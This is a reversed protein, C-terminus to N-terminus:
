APEHAAALLDEPAAHVHGEDVPQHVAAAPRHVGRRAGDAEHLGAQHAAVREENEASRDREESIQQPESTLRSRSVTRMSMGRAPARSTARTGRSASPACFSTAIPTLRAVKTTE